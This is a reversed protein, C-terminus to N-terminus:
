CSQFEIGFQECIAKKLAEKELVMSVINKAVMNRLGHKQVMNKLVM